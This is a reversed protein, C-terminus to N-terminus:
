HSFCYQLMRLGDRLPQMKSSGTRRKRYHVPLERCKLKLRAAHIMWEMDGWSGSSIPLTSFDKRWMMKTGCLADSCYLGMRLSLVKALIRNGMNRFRNMAGKEMPYVFRTGWVFESEGNLFLNYFHSLEEPAVTMDADLIAILDAETIQMAAQVAIGKGKNQPQKVLVLKPYQLSLTELITGTDDDSGDDVAIIETVMELQSVRHICETINAAENYCPVIVAFSLPPTPSM